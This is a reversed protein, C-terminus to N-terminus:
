SSAWFFFGDITGILKLRENACVYQRRTCQVSAKM